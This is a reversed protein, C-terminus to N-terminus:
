VLKFYVSYLSHQRAGISTILQLFVTLVTSIVEVFTHPQTEQAARVVCTRQWWLEWLGVSLSEAKLLLLAHLFERSMFSLKFVFM